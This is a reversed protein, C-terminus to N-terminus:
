VDGLYRKNLAKMDLAHEFIAAIDACASRPLDFLVIGCTNICFNNLNLVLTARFAAFESPNFKM